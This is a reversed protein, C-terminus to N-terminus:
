LRSCGYFFLINFCLCIIINRTTTNNRTSTPSVEEFPSEKDSKGSTDSSREKSNTNHHPDQENNRVSPDQQQHHPSTPRSPSRRKDVWRTAVNNMFGGGSRGGEGGKGGSESSTPAVPHLSSSSPPQQQQQQQGIRVGNEWRQPKLAQARSIGRCQQEWLRTASVVTLNHGALQQEHVKKAHKWIISEHTTFEAIVSVVGPQLDTVKPRPYRHRKSDHRNHLYCSDRIPHDFVLSLLVFLSPMHELTGVATFGELADQAAKLSVTSSCFPPEAQRSLVAEYCHLSLPPFFPGITDKSKLFGLLHRFDSSTARDPRRLVTQWLARMELTKKAATVSHQGTAFLYHAAQGGSFFFLQSLVREV